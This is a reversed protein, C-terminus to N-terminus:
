QTSRMSQEILAIRRELDDLETARFGARLLAEASRVQVSPTTAELNRVLAEVANRMNSMLADLVSRLLATRADALASAFSETTLWRRLTRESVGSAAAAASITLGGLLAAIAQDQRHEHGRVTM